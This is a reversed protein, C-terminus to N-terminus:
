SVIGCLQGPSKMVDETWERRKHCSRLGVLAKRGLNPADNSGQLLVRSSKEQCAFALSVIDSAEDQDEALTGPEGPGPASGPTCRRSSCSGRGLGSVRRLELRGPPVDVDEKASDHNTTHLGGSVSRSAKEKEKRGTSRYFVIGNSGTV